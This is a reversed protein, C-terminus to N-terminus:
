DWREAVTLALLVALALVNETQICIVKGDSVNAIETEGDYLYGKDSEIKMQWGNEFEYLSKKFSLKERFQFGENGERLKWRRVFPNFGRKVAIARTGDASILVYKRVFFALKREFLFAPQGEETLVQVKGSFGSKLASSFNNYVYYKM